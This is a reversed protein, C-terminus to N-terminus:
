VSVNLGSGTFRHVTVFERCGSGLRFGQVSFGSEDVSGGGGMSLNREIEVAIGIEIAIGWCELM